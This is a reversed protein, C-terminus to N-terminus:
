DVSLGKVKQELDIIYAILLDSSKDQAAAEVRGSNYKGLRLTTVLLTDLLEIATASLKLKPKERYTCSSFWAPNDTERWTDTESNYIEIRAGDAWQIILDRHLQPM